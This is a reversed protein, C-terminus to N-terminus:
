GGAARAERRRRLLIDLALAAGASGMVGLAAIGGLMRIRNPGVYSVEPSQPAAQWEIRQDDFVGFEDQRQEIIAAIEDTLADVREVVNEATPGVVDIILVPRNFNPAWQGGQNPVYVREGERVGAGYLPTDASSFLQGTPSDAITEEVIRAFGVLTAASDTLTNGGVAWGVPPLLTITTRATYVGTVQMASAAWGATLALGILLVFWRRALM